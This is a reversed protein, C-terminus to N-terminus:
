GQPVLSVIRRLSQGNIVLTLEIADYAGESDSACNLPNGGQWCAVTVSDVGELVKLASAESGIAQGSRMWQEEFDDRRTLAPSSWRQWTGARLAWAVVSVGGEVYRVLRVTTQGDNVNFSARGPGSLQELDREWQAWMTQLRTTRELSATTADRSRFMGDLGRWALGALVAMIVLAVLVEVLTFGRPGNARRSKM